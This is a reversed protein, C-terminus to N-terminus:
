PVLATTEVRQLVPARVPLFLLQTCHPRHGEAGEENRVTLRAPLSAAQSPIRPSCWPSVACLCWLWAQPVHETRTFLGGGTLRSHSRDTHAPPIRGSHSPFTAPSLNIEFGPELGKSASLWEPTVRGREKGPLLTPSRQETMKQHSHQSGNGFPGQLQAWSDPSHVLGLLCFSSAPEKEAM